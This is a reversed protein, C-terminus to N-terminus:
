FPANENNIVQDKKFLVCDLVNLVPFTRGCQAAFAELGPLHTMIKDLKRTIDLTLLDLCAADELDSALRAISTLVVDLQQCAPGEGVTEAVEPFQSATLVGDLLSDIMAVQIVLGASVCRCQREGSLKNAIVTTCTGFEIIPGLDGGGAIRNLCPAGPNVCVTGGGSLSRSKCAGTINEETVEINQCTKGVPVALVVTPLAALVFCSLKFPIM